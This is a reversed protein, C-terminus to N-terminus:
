AEESGSDQGGLQKLEQELERLYRELQWIMPRYFSEDIEDLHVRIAKLENEEEASLGDLFKKDVLEGHRRYLHANDTM